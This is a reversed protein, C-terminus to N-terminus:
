RTLLPKFLFALVLFMLALAIPVGVVLLVIFGLAPVNILWDWAEALTWLFFPHQM